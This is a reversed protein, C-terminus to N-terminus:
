LSSMMMSIRWPLGTLTGWAAWDDDVYCLANPAPDGNVRWEHLRTLYAEILEYEDGLPLVSTVIRGTYIEPFLDGSWGDYVSDQGATGIGPYGIWNDEWVGDLDMYFYDSPFTENSRASSEVTCLDSSCM